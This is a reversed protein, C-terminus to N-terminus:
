TLRVGVVDLNHVYLLIGKILRFHQCSDIGLRERKSWRSISIKMKRVTGVTGNGGIHITEEESHYARLYLHHSGLIEKDIISFVIIRSLTLPKHHILLLIFGSVIIEMILGTERREMHTLMALMLTAVTTVTRHGQIIHTGGMLIDNHAAVAGAHWPM